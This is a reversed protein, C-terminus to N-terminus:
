ALSAKELEDAHVQADIKAKLAETSLEDVIIEEPRYQSQHRSTSVSYKDKNAYWAGRIKAYMPFHQGYSYVVYCARSEWRGYVHSGEFAWCGKVFGRGNKNAIKVM